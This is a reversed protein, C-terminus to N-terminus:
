VSINGVLTNPIQTRAVLQVRMQKPFTKRGSRELSYSLCKTIVGTVNVGDYKATDTVLQQGAHGTVQHLM